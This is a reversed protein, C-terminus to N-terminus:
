KLRYSLSVRHADGLDSDIMSYAYSLSLAGRHFGAGASLGEVDYNFKYGAAVTVMERYTYEAGAHVKVDEGKYSVVDAAVLVASQWEELPLAYAAGGRVTMPISFEEEVFKMKPGVNYVGAALSLGAVPTDYRGGLDFAYGSATEDDIQELLFKGSAGVYVGPKVSTGWGATAAVDYFGFHGLFNGFDDYRELESMYLGSFAAGFGHNGWRKAVGLYEQRIDQFWENHSVHFDWGEVLALGAPNWYLSTADAAVAAQASGMAVARAGVGIKLFTLGTVEDEASVPAACVVVALALAALVALVPTTPAPRM